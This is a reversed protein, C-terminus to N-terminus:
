FSYVLKGDRARVELHGKEALGGLMRDAEAVTLAAELAARAPTIEGHRDIAELLRREADKGDPVAVAADTPAHGGLARDRDAGSGRLGEVGRKWLRMAVPTTLGCAAVVGCLVAWWFVEPLLTTGEGLLLTLMVGAWAAALVIGVGMGAGLTLQAKAVVGKGVLHRDVIGERGPLGTM